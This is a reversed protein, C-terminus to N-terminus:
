TILIIMKGAPILCKLTFSILFGLFVAPILVIPVGIKLGQGFNLYGGNVKDRYHRIGLFVFIMSLIMTLYGTSGATTYDVNHMVIFSHVTTLVLLALMAYIGYRLITLKM